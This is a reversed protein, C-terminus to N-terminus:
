KELPPFVLMSGPKLNRFDDLGNIQAIRLYYKSTGYIRETMLPLTDGALVMRAHTLDPSSLSERAMRTKVE